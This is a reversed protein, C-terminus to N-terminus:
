GFLTRAAASHPVRASTGACVVGPGLRAFRRRIERVAVVESAASALAGAATMADAPREDPQKALMRELVEALLGDNARGQAREEIIQRATATPTAARFPHEGTCLEWLSIGLSFLDSRVDLPRGLLQEPSSYALKGKIKGPATWTVREPARAIGFDALKLEGQFSVLVNDPTLDRHVVGRPLAGLAACVQLGIWAVAAAPLAEPQRPGPRLQALTGGRVLELVLALRGPEVWAQDILRVVGPHAIAALIRAEEMASEPRAASHPVKVCVLQGHDPGGVTRALHANAFGGRGLIRGVRYRARAGALTTSM